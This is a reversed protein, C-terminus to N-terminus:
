LICKTHKNKSFSVIARLESRLVNMRTRTSCHGSCIFGETTDQFPGRYSFASTTESYATAIFNQNADGLRLDNASRGGGCNWSLLQPTFKFNWSMNSNTDKTSRYQVTRPPASLDKARGVERHRLFSDQFVAPKRSFWYSLL